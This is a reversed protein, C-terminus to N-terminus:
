EIIEKMIILKNLEEESIIKFNERVEGKYKELIIDLYKEASNISKFKLFGITNPNYVKSIHVTYVFFKNITSEFVVSEFNSKILCYKM